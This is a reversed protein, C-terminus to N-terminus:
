VCPARQGDAGRALCVGTTFPQWPHGPQVRDPTQSSRLSSLSWSVDVYPMSFRQNQSLVM